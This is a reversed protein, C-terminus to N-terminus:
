TFFLNLTMFVVPSRVIAGAIAIMQVHRQKLGRRLDRKEEEEVFQIDMDRPYSSSSSAKSAPDEVRLPGAKERDVPKAMMFM